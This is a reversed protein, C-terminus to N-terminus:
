RTCASSRRRRSRRSMSRVATRTAGSCRARRSRTTRRTARCTRRLTCIILHIGGKRAARVQGETLDAWVKLEIVRQAGEPDVVLDARFDPARVVEEGILEPPDGLGLHVALAARFDPCRRWAHALLGQLRREEGNRDTLELIM